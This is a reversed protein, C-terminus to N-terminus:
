VTIVKFFIGIKISVYLNELILCTTTMMMM